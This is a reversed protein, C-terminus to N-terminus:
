NMAASSQPLGSENAGTLPIEGLPTEPIESTEASKNFTFLESFKIERIGKFITAAWANLISLASQAAETPNTTSDITEVKTVLENIAEAPVEGPKIEAVKFWKMITARIAEPASMIAKGYNALQQAKTYKEVEIIKPSPRKGKSYEINQLLFGEKIPTQIRLIYDDDDGDKLETSKNSKYIVNSDLLIPQLQLYPNTKRIQNIKDNNLHIITLDGDLIGEIKGYANAAQAIREEATSSMAPKGFNQGEGPEQTKLYTHELMGMLTPSSSALLMLLSLNRLNKKM